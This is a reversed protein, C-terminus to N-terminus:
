VTNMRTVCREYKIAKRASTLNSLILPMLEFEDSNALTVLNIYSGVHGLSLPSHIDDCTTYLEAYAGRDPLLFSGRSGREQNRWHPLDCGRELDDNHDPTRDIFGVLVHGTSLEKYRSGLCNGTISALVVRQSQKGGSLRSAHGAGSQWCHTVTCLCRKIQTYKAGPRQRCEACVCRHRTRSYESLTAM